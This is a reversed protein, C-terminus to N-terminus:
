ANRKSTDRLQRRQLQLAIKYSEKAEKKTPAWRGEVERTLFGSCRGSRFMRYERKPWHGRSELEPQNIGLFQAFSEYCDADLFERYKTKIPAPALRAIALDTGLRTARFVVDSADCFRPTPTKVMLGQRELDELHEASDHGPGAVYHNRYARRCEPTLGLAHQLLSIHHQTIGPFEAAVSPPSHPASMIEIHVLHPYAYRRVHM